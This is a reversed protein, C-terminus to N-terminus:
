RPPGGNWGGAGAIGKHITRAMKVTTAPDNAGVVVMTPISIEPLRHTLNLKAIAQCCAIYGAMPTGRVMSRVADAREPRTAVTAPTLFRGVTSEVMAEM